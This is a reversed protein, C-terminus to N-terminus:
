ILRAEKINDWFKEIEEELVEMDDSLLDIERGLNRFVYFRIYQSFKTKSNEINKEQIVRYGGEDILLDLARDISVEDGQQNKLMLLTSVILKACDKTLMKIHSHGMKNFMGKLFGM